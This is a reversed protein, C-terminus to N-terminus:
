FMESCFGGIKSVIVNGNIGFSTNNTLPAVRSKSTVLVVNLEGNRKMIKFYICCGYAQLSSDAFGILEVNTIPNNNDYNFYCRSIVFEGLKKIENLAFSWQSALEKPLEEDWKLKLTCAKQFIIKLQIILPQVWGLPDFFGAVTELISRKTVKKDLAENIKDEFSIILNDEKNNWIIGLVKANLEEEENESKM